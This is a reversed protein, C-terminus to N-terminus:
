ESIDAQNFESLIMAFKKLAKGRHSISSKEKATM